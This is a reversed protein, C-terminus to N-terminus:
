RSVAPSWVGAPVSTLAHCLTRGENTTEAYHHQHLHGHESLHLLCSQRLNGGCRCLGRQAEIYRMRVIRKM